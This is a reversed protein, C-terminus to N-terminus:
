QAAPIPNIGTPAPQNAGQKLVGQQNLTNVLNNYAQIINVTDTRLGETLKSQQSYQWILFCQGAILLGLVFVLIYNFIQGRSDSSNLPPM